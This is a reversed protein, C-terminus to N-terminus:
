PKRRLTVRFYRGGSRIVFETNGGALWDNLRRSTDFDRHIVYRGISKKVEAGPADIAAKIDTFLGVRFEEDSIDFVPANGSPAELAEAVLRPSRRLYGLEEMRDYAKLTAAGENLGEAEYRAVLGEKVRKFERLRTIHARRSRERIIGTPIGDPYVAAFDANRVLVEYVGDDRIEIIAAPHSERGPLTLVERGAVLAQDSAGVAGGVGTQMSSPAPGDAPWRGRATYQESTPVRTIRLDIRYDAGDDDPDVRASMIQFIRGRYGQLVRGAAPTHEWTALTEIEGTARVLRRLRIADSFLYANAPPSFHEWGFGWTVGFSDRQVFYVHRGAPDWAPAFYGRHGEVTVLRTLYLFLMLAVVVGASVGIIIWHKRSM